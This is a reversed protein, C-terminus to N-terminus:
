IGKTRGYECPHRPSQRVSRNPLDDYWHAFV